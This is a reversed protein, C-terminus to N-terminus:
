LGVGHGQDGRIIIRHAGQADFARIVESRNTSATATQSASVPAIGPPTAERLSTRDSRKKKRTPHPTPHAFNWCWLVSSVVGQTVGFESSRVGLTPAPQQICEGTPNARLLTRLEAAAREAETRTTRHATPKQYYCDWSLVRRKCCAPPATRHLLRLSLPIHTSLRSTTRSM